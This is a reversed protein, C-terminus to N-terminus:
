QVSTTQEVTSTIAWLWAVYGCLGCAGPALPNDMSSVDFLLKAVLWVFLPLHVIVGPM